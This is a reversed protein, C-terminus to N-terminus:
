EFDDDFVWFIGTKQVIKGHSVYEATGKVRITPQQCWEAYYYNRKGRGFMEVVTGKPMQCIDGGRFLKQILKPQNKVQFRCATHLSLKKTGVVTKRVAKLKKAECPLAALVVMVLLTALLTKQM